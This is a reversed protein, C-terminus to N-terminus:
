ADTVPMVSEATGKRSEATHAKLREKIKHFEAVRISREDLSIFGRVHMDGRVTLNIIASGLKIVPRSRGM